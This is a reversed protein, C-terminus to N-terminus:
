EKTERKQFEFGLKEARARAKASDEQRGAKEYLDALAAHFPSTEPALKALREYIVIAEAFLGLREYDMAALALGAPDDGTALEKIEQAEEIQDETAIAFEGSGLRQAEGPLKAVVEWRYTRSSKLAPGQYELEPKKATASWHRQTGNYVVVEYETAKAVAPWSLLPRQTLLTAGHIPSIRSAVKEGPGSRPVSVGGAFALEPLRNLGKAVLTQRRADSAISEVRDKPACGASSATFKSAVKLRESHGDQRFVLVVQTGDAVSLTDGEFVTGYVAASRSKGEGSQITVSGKLELIRAVPKPAAAASSVVSSLLLFVCFERWPRFM